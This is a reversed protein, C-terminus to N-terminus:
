EGPVYLEWRYGDPDHFWLGVSSSGPSVPGIEDGPDELDVGRARMVDRAATLAALDPVRFALHGLVGSVPRGAFLAILVADNGLLVREPTRGYVELDFLATWWAASSELDAVALAFHSVPGLSITDDNQM